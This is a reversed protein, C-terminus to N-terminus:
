DCFLLDETRDNNCTERGNNHAFKWLERGHDDHTALPRPKRRPRQILKGALSDYRVRGPVTDPVRAAPFSTLHGALDALKLMDGHVVATAGSSGQMRYNGMGENRVVRCPGLSIFELKKSGKVGTRYAHAAAFRSGLSM